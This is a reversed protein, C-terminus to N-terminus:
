QDKPNDVQEDGSAGGDRPRSIRHLARHQLSGAARSALNIGTM